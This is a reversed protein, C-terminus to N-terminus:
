QSITYKVTNYKTIFQLSCFSPQFYLHARLDIDSYSKFFFRGRPTRTHPRIRISLPICTQRRGFLFLLFVEVYFDFRLSGVGM